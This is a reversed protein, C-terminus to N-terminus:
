SEHTNANAHAFICVPLINIRIYIICAHLNPVQSNTKLTDNVSVGMHLISVFVRCQTTQHSTHTRDIEVIKPPSNTVVSGKSGLDLFGLNSTGLWTIHGYLATQTLDPRFGQLCTKEHRPEFTKLNYM